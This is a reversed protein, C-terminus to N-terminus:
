PMKSNVNKAKPREFEGELKVYMKKKEDEQVVLMDDEIHCEADYDFNSQQLQEILDGMKM